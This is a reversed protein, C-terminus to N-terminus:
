LQHTVSYVLKYMNQSVQKDHSKWYLIYTFVGVESHINLSVQDQLINMSVEEIVFQFVIKRFTSYNGM